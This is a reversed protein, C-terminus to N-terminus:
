EVEEWKQRAAVSACTALYGIVTYIDNSEPQLEEMEFTFRAFRLLHLVLDGSIKYFKDPEIKKQQKKKGVISIVNDDESM